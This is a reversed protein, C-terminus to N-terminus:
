VNEHRKYLKLHHSWLEGTVGGISWSLCPHVLGGERVKECVHRVLDIDKSREAGLRYWLRASKEVRYQQWCSAPKTLSTLCWSSWTM